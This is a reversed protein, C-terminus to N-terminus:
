FLLRRLGHAFRKEVKMQLADYWSKGDGDRQNITTITPAIALYPRGASM